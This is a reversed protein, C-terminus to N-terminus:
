YCDRKEKLMKALLEIAQMIEYDDLIDKLPDGNKIYRDAKIIKDYFEKNLTLM